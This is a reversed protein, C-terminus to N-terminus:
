AYFSPMQGPKLAVVFGSQLELIQHGSLFHEYADETEEREAYRSAYTHLAAVAEEKTEWSQYTDTM